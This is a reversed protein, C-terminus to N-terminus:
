DVGTLAIKAMTDIDILLDDIDDPKRRRYGPPLGPRLPGIKRPGSPQVARRGRERALRKAQRPLDDLATEIATLRRKLTSPDFDRQRITASPVIAAGLGALSIRPTFRPTKFCPTKFYPTKRTTNDHFTKRPDILPFAAVRGGAAGTQAGNTAFSTFDPLPKKPGRPKPMVDALDRAAIVILRRVAAELARTARRVYKYTRWPVLGNDDAYGLSAVVVAIM